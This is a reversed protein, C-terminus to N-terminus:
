SSLGCPKCGPYEPRYTRHHLTGTITIFMTTGTLTVRYRAAGTINQPMIGETKVRLGSGPKRTFLLTKLPHQISPIILFTITGDMFLHQYLCGGKAPM